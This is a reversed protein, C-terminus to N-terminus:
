APMKLFRLARCDFKFDRASRLCCNDFLMRTLVLVKSLSIRNTDCSDSFSMLTAKPEEEAAWKLNKWDESSALRSPAFAMFPM